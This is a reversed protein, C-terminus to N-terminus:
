AAQALPATETEKAATNIMSGALIPIILAVLKILSEKQKKDLGAAEVVQSLQTESSPTPQTPAAEPQRLQYGMSTLVEIVSRIM